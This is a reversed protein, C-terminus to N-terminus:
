AGFLDCLRLTQVVKPLMVITIRRRGGRDGRVRRHCRKPYDVCRRFAPATTGTPAPIPNLQRVPLVSLGSLRGDRAPPLGMFARLMVTRPSPSAAPTVATPRFRVGAGGGEGAAKTGILDRDAVSSM